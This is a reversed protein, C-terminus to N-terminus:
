HPFINEMEKQQVAKLFNFYSLKYSKFFCAKTTFNLTIGKIETKGVYLKVSNLGFEVYINLKANNKYDM